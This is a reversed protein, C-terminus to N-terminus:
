GSSYKVFYYFEDLFAVLSLLGVLSSALVILVIVFCLVANRRISASKALVAILSLAVGLFLFAPIFLLIQGHLLLLM